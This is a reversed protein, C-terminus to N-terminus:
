RSSILGSAVVSAGASAETVYVQPVLRTRREYKAAVLKVFAASYVRDVLAVACGGFGAGTMRAGHCGPQAQAIEVMTDLAPSSVEFDDRLSQHSENMLVGLGAADGSCMAEAAALTRADETVVHRARRATTADLGGTRAELMEPMVDRLAAVGFFAAAAECQRRRENYTSDVLGRRTATDLIVVVTNDPLPVARTGLTRCDILVAQGDRGVASIMQDM